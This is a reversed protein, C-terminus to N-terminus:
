TLIQEIPQPRSWLYGQGMGCGLEHLREAQEQTEVGEAVISLGLASALGIIAQVIADSRPDTLMSATFSQDIKLEDLPLRALRALTSFGTGFDDVAVRVGASRLTQLETTLSGRTSELDTETLEIVLLEPPAGAAKVAEKVQEALDGRRLLTTSVNVHLRPCGEGTATSWGALVACATSLIWSELAAGTAGTNVVDLWADPTLLGRTPHQWRVLAEAAVVRGSTLDVIPQAFLVIEGRDIAGEFETAISAFYVARDHFSPDFWTAQGRGQAKAIHVATDADRLLEDYTSEPGSIAVGVSAGIRFTGAPTTFPDDFAARLRSVSSSAMAPDTASLVIAFEDGGLRAVTDGARVSVELRRAAQRLIEDGVAHGATDNVRQFEDLDVVLVAVSGGYRQAAAVARDVRDRLLTRNPLGTLTDHISQHELEREVMKRTTTESLQMVVLGPEDSLDAAVVDAWRSGTDNALEVEDRWSARRGAAVDGLVSEVSPDARGLVHGWNITGDPAANLLDAAVPNIELIELGRHTSQMIVAGLLADDFGGRLIRESRRVQTLLGRHLSVTIALSWVVALTSVVFVQTLVFEALDTPGRGADAGFTFVLDSLSGWGFATLTLAAMLSLSVEWTSTRLPLRMAGWLLAPLLLFAQSLRPEVSFVAVTVVALVAMQVITEGRRAEGRQWPQSMVLPTILLVASAHSALVHLFTPWAEGDAVLVVTSTAGIAIVVSALTAAVLLRWLDSISVLSPRGQAGRLLWWSAVLAELANSLGFLTSVLVPRGAVVNGLLSAVLVIVVVWGRAGPRATVVGAVAVGAAPWWLAVAGDGSARVAAASLLGVLLAVGVAHVVAGARGGPVALSSLAM